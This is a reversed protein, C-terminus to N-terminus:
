GTPQSPSTYRRHIAFEQVVRNIVNDSSPADPRLGLSLCRFLALLQGVVVDTVAARDDDIAALGPCELVMDDRRVIEAPITDGVILRGGLEKLNLERILDMEYARTVADSSLFCVVLTDDHVACMPGHRLGLFTEAVANIRGDTMELMKLASERASGFRAGSGLFVASRFGSNAAAALLGSRDIV